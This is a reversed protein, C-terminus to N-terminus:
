SLRHPQTAQDLTPLPTTEMEDFWTSPTPEHQDSNDDAAPVSERQAERLSMALGAMANNSLRAGNPEPRGSPGPPIEGLLMNRLVSASPLRKAPLTYMAIGAGELVRRVRELRQQRSAPTNEQQLEIVALVETTQTCLLLDVCHHGVRQLWDGYANDTPVRLFRSLPVQALILHDPCAERLVGLAKRESSMLVRMPKPHWAEVTDLPDPRASVQKRAQGSKHRLWLLAVALLLATGWAIALGLTM